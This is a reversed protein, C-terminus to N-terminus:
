RARRPAPGFRMFFLAVVFLVIVLLMLLWTTCCNARMARRTSEIRRTETRLRAANSDMSTEALALVAADGRLASQALLSNNKLQAVMEAADALLAEQAARQSEVQARETRADAEEGAVRGARRRRSQPAPRPPAEGSAAPAGPRQEGDDGTAAAPEPADPEAAPAMSRVLPEIAGVERARPSGRAGGDGGDGGREFSRALEDLVRIRRRCHELQASSLGDARDAERYLLRLKAVHAGLVHRDLEASRALRETCHLLRTLNVASTVADAM